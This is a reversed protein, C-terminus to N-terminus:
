LTSIQLIAISYTYYSVLVTVNVDRPMPKVLIRFIDDDLIHGARKFDVPILTEDYGDAEDGSTDRVRGGHGSYHVFVVDGPQSYQCIRTFADTINKKTPANHRGDDMLVLMESEQFGQHSILYRKINKVDNHCGSLQGNQGIYNIGILVARRRGNVQISSPPVIEFQDHANLLRSASLQPIQDYGKQNLVVRMKRLLELWSMPDPNENLVKLLTSTCAGGAKGATNPLNFSGVNYVDASTKFNFIFSYVLSQSTGQM